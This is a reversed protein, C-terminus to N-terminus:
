RKLIKAIKKSLEEREQKLREVEKTLNDREQKLKENEEKLNRMVKEKEKKEIELENKLNKIEGKLKVLEFAEVSIDESTLVVYSNYKVYDSKKLKEFVVDNIYNEFL